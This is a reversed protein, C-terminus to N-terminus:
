PASWRLCCDLYMLERSNICTSALLYPNTPLLFDLSTNPHSMPLKKWLFSAISFKKCFLSYIRFTTGVCVCVCLGPSSSNVQESCDVPGYLGTMNPMLPNLEQFSLFHTVEREIPTTIFIYIVLSDENFWNILLRYLRYLLLFLFM